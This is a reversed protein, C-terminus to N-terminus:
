VIILCFGRPKEAPSKTKASRTPLRSVNQTAHPPNAPSGDLSTIRGTPNEAL